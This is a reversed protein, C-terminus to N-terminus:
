RVLEEHEVERGHAPLADVGRHRRRQRVERPGAEVAEGDVEVGVAQVVRHHGGDVVAQRAAQADVLEDGHEAGGDRAPARNGDLHRDPM